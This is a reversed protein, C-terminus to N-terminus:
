LVMRKLMTYLYELKTYIPKKIQEVTSCLLKEKQERGLIEFSVKSCLTPKKNNAHKIWQNYHITAIIDILVKPPTLHM